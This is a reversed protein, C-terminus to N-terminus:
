FGTGAAGGAAAQQAARMQMMVGAASAASAAAAGSSPTGKVGCVCASSYEGMYVMGTCLLGQQDCLKDCTARGGVIHASGMFETACGSLLSVCAVILPFLRRM